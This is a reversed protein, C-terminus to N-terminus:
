GSEAELLTMLQSWAGDVDKKPLFVVSDRLPWVPQEGASERDSDASGEEGTVKM